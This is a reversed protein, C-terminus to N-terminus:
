YINLYKQGGTHRIDTQTDTWRDSWRDAHRHPLIHMQGNKQGGKQICGHINQKLTHVHTDTLTPVFLGDTRRGDTWGDMIWGDRYVSM